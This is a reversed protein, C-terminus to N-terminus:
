EGSYYKIINGFGVLVIFGIGTILYFFYHRKFRMKWSFAKFDVGLIMTTRILRPNASINMDFFYVVM